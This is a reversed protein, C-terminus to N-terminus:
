SSAPAQGFTAKDSTSLPAERDDDAHRIVVEVGHPRLRAFERETRAAFADPVDAPLTVEVATLHGTHALDEILIQTAYPTLALARYVSCRPGRTVRIRAIPFIPEGYHGLDFAAQM